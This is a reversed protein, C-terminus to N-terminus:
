PKAKEAAGMFLVGALVLAVGCVFPLWWPWQRMPYALDILGFAMSGWGWGVVILGWAIRNKDM